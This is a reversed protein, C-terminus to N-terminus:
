LPETCSTVAAGLLCGHSSWRPFEAWLLYHFGWGTDTRMSMSSSLLSTGLLTRGLSRIPLFPYENHLAPLLLLTMLLSLTPGGGVRM